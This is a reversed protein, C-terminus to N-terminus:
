EIVLQDLWRAGAPYDVRHDATYPPREPHEPPASIENLDIAQAHGILRSGEQEFHFYTGNWLKAGFDRPSKFLFLLNHELWSWDNATVTQPHPYPYPVYCSVEQGELCKFEKMSLFYDKFQTLDINLKFRSTQADIPEFTVTGIHIKDHTSTIATIQKVGQWPAPSQAHTLSTLGGVLLVSLILHRLSAKKM